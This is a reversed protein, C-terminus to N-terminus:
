PQEAQERWAQHSLMAGIDDTEVFRAGRAGLALAAEPDDVTYCAWLWGGPSLRGPPLRRADIFLYNPALAAAQRCRQDNWDRVVWGVPRGLVDRAHRVTERAFSIFHCQAMAPRLAPKLADVVRAAGFARLSARKIEVFATLAPRSALWEAAEAATPLLDPDEAVSRLIAARTQLVSIDVGTTRLLNHDHVVLPVADASFQIDLEVFRAGAAAAAQLGSLSNEPHRAPWGRHAVLLPTPINDANDSAPM